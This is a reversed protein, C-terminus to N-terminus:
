VLIPWRRRLVRLGSEVRHRVAKSNLHAVPPGGFYRHRIAAQQEAPLTSIVSRLEALRQERRTASAIAAVEPDVGDEVPALVEARYDDCSVPVSQKQQRDLQRRVLSAHHTVLAQSEDDSTPAPQDVGAILISLAVEQAIDEVGTSAGGDVSRSLWRWVAKAAQGILRATSDACLWEGISSWQVDASKDTTNCLPVIGM